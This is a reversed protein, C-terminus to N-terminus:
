RARPRLSSRFAHLKRCTADYQVQMTGPEVHKCLPGGDESINRDLLTSPSLRRDKVFINIHSILEGGLLFLYGLHRRITTAALQEQTVLHTVFPKIQELLEQGYALDRQDIQWAKPWEGM